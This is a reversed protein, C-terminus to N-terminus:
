IKTSTSSPEEMISVANSSEHFVVGLIHWIYCGGGNNREIISHEKDAVNRFLDAWYCLQM